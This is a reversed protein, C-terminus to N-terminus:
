QIHTLLQFGGDCFDNNNALARYLVTRWYNLGYEDEYDDADENLKNSVRVEDNLPGYLRALARHQGRLHELSRLRYRDDLGLLKFHSQMHRYVHVSIGDPRFVKYRLGLTGRLTDLRVNVKLFQIPPIEDYYPHIFLRADTEKDVVHKWKRTNCPGCCPILNEALIAFQPKLEKPLYHDLTSSEGIGCFPCRAVSVRQLLNSRLKTLPVTKNNYAHLLASSQPDSIDIEPLNAVEPVAEAYEIYAALM